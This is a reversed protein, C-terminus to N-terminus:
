KPDGYVIGRGSTGLYVRGYQRPDGTVVSVAGFEHEDDSIRTWGLAEDDSRFLGAVGAVKGSLYLAPYDADPASRGLGIALASDVGDVLSFSMAGDTSRYLGASAALWLHGERGFVSRLRGGRPLALPTLSFSVGGDHSVYVGQRDVAYFTDQAVRDSIVRAGASLGSCLSWSEGQDNSYAPASRDPSWVLTAGDASLAISGAGNGPPESEFPEFTAGGDRSLAGRRGSANTGVRAVIEPADEAFDLGTTNGFLPNDFMGRSPSEDLTDHRFGAIDGLASLLPAGEPPSVLDLPVTEELGENRFSFEASLGADTDTVNDSWWVGQGTVYLVRSRNFPDIELDGMWGTSTVENGGFRLWSAGAADFSASRGLEAWHKGGDVSRYIQDPAWLGITTAMLTGPRSADVAIGGFGANRPSIDTWEDKEPDLKWIAGRKIGNPGPGDGYAFYLSGDSAVAAHHPMMQTPAGPVAEFSHGADRSRYITPGSLTAVGVYLADAKADPAVFSIGIGDDGRATLAAARHWSDGEDESYWLGGTRSGFYLREPHHPDVALREGMSRGDHNGGMPLGIVHRSFSEGYDDSRLIYGDGATLYTGAAIYVREPRTPDLAISEVGLLNAADQGVWDLLPLWRELKVSYRYAGGVDTRVFVLNPVASSFVIGSVFGGGKIAVNQWAYPGSSSRELLESPVPEDAILEIPEPKGPKAPASDGDVPTSTDVCSVALSALAALNCISARWRPMRALM